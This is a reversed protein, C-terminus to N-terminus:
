IGDVPIVTNHPQIEFQSTMIRLQGARYRNAYTAAKDGLLVSRAVVDYTPKLFPLTMRAPVANTGARASPQALEDAVSLGAAKAITHVAPWVYRMQQPTRLSNQLRTMVWNVMAWEGAVRLSLACMDVFREALQQDEPTSPRLCPGLLRQMPHQQTGFVPDPTVFGGDGDEKRNFKIFLTANLPVCLADREEFVELTGTLMHKMSVYIEGHAEYDNHLRYTLQLSSLYEKPVFLRALEDMTFPEMAIGLQTHAMREVTRQM